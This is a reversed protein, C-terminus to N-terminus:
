DRCAFCVCLTRVCVLLRVKRKAGPLNQLDNLQLLRPVHSTSLAAAALRSHQQLLPSARVISFMQQEGTLRSTIHLKHQKIPASYGESIDATAARLFATMKATFRARRRSNSARCQMLANFVAANLKSHSKKEESTQLRSFNAICCLDSPLLLPPLFLFRVASCSADDSGRATNVRAGSRM